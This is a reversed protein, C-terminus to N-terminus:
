SSPRDYVARYNVTSNVFRRKNKNQTTILHQTNAPILAIYIMRPINISILIFLFIQGREM